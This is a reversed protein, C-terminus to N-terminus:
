IGMNVKFHRVAMKHQYTHCVAADIVYLMCVFMLSLIIVLMHIDCLYTNVSQIPLPSEKVFGIEM